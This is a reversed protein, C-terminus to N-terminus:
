WIKLIKIDDSWWVANRLVWIRNAVILSYFFTVGIRYGIPVTSGAYLICPM